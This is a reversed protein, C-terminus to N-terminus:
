CETQTVNVWRRPPEMGIRVRLPAARASSTPRGAQSFAARTLARCRRAATADLAYFTFGLSGAAQRPSLEESYVM